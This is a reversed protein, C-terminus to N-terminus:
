AANREQRRRRRSYFEERYPMYVEIDGRSLGFHCRSRFSNDGGLVNGLGLKSPAATAERRERTARATDRM